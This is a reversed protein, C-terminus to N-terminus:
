LGATFEVGAAPLWATGSIFQAVTFKSAESVSMSPHVGAWSIRGSAAAGPGTNGYEGYYLTSLAFSGSWPEWGAPHIADDLYSQMVVVRSYKQWPRGLYSPVSRKVAALDSSPAIRCRHISIGTNQNPDTRGQATVSNKQGHNPKRLYINCAQLVVASNGFIFDVTGYIDTERYFQRNSHTYLTDQHGEISCHYVVAKDAGVLLAVAQHNSPGANNVITLDKAIFGSGLAAVTASQYTSWGDEANRSGVIISKGKGDGVLMVNTQGKPIKVNEMYTGAKVYIVRRGGGRSSALSVFALAEGISRHTGSDDMAVVADVLIDKGGTSLLKRDAASVWSPFSDRSLLKRGGGGVFNTRGARRPLQISKVLALSKSVLHILIEAQSDFSADGSAPPKSKLSELCTVQNTLAASLWTEVDEQSPQKRSDMVDSLQAVTADLLEVCDYNGTPPYPHSRHDYPFTLNYALSRIAHARSMAFEISVDFLHRSTKMVAGSVTALASECETLYLTNNCATSIVSATALTPKATLMRSVINQIGPALSTSRKNGQLKM